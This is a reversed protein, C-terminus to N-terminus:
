EGNGNGKYIRNTIDTIIRNVNKGDHLYLVIPPGAFAMIFLALLTWKDGLVSTAIGAGIIATLFGGFALQPRKRWMPIILYGAVAAIAAWLVIYQLQRLLERLEETM